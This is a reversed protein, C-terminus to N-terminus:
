NACPVSKQEKILLKVLKNIKFNEHLTVFALLLQEGGDSVKNAARLTRVMPLFEGERMLGGEIAIVWKRMVVILTGFAGHRHALITNCPTM